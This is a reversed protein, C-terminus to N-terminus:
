LPCYSYAGQNIKVKIATGRVVQIKEARIGILLRISLIDFTKPAKSYGDNSLPKRTKLLSVSFIDALFIM